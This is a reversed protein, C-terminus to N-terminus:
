LVLGSAQNRAASSLYAFVGTGGDVFVSTNTFGRLALGDEGRFHESLGLVGVLLVWAEGGQTATTTVVLPSSDHGLSLAVLIALLIYPLSSELDQAPILM